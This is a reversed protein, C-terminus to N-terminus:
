FMGIAVGKISDLFGIIIEQVINDGKRKRSSGSTFTEHYTRSKDKFV